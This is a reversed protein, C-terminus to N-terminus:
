KKIGWGFHMAVVCLASITLIALVLLVLSLVQKKKKKEFRDRYMKVYPLVSSDTIGIMDLKILAEDCKKFWTEGVEGAGVEGKSLGFAIFELLDEKTNPIPHTKIVNSVKEEYNEVDEKIKNLKVELQKLCNNAEINRFEHGCEKCIVQFPNVTAGCSPCKKLDGVKNSRKEIPPAPFTNPLVKAEKEKKLQAIKGDLILEIEDKDEGLSESKRLIIAREKETVVGDALAMEILNEIEPHM